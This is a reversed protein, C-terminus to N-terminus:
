SLNKRLNSCFTCYTKGDYGHYFSKCEKCKSPRMNCESGIYEMVARQQFMAKVKALETLLEVTM